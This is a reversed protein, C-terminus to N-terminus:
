ISNIYNQIQATEKKTKFTGNKIVVGHQEKRLKSYKKEKKTYDKLNQNETKKM